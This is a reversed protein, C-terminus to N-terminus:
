NWGMFRLYIVYIGFNWGFLHGMFFGGYRLNEPGSPKQQTSSTLLAGPQSGKKLWEGLHLEGLHEVKAVLGVRWTRTGRFPVGHHPGLKVVMCKWSTEHMQQINLSLNNWSFEWFTKKIECTRETLHLSDTYVTYIDFTTCMFYM